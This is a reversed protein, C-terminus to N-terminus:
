RIRLAARAQTQGYQVWGAFARSWEVLRKVPYAIENRGTTPDTRWLVDQVAYDPRSAVGTHHPTTMSRVDALVHGIGDKLSGRVLGSDYIEDLGEYAARLGKEIVDWATMYTAIPTRWVEGDDLGIAEEKAMALVPEFRDIFYNADQYLDVINNLIEHARAETKFRGAIRAPDTMNM